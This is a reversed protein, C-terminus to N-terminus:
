GIVMRYLFIIGIIFIILMIGACSLCVSAGACFAKQELKYVPCDKKHNPKLEWCYYCNPDPKEYSFFDPKEPILPISLKKKENIYERMLQAAKNLASKSEEKEPNNEALQLLKDIRNLKNDLIM